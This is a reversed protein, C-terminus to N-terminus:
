QLKRYDEDTIHEMYCNHDQSRVWSLEQIICNYWQKDYADKAKDMDTSLQSIRIDIYERFDHKKGRRM